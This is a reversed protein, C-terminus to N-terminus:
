LEKTLDAYFKIGLLFGWLDHAETLNSICDCYVDYQQVDMAEMQLLEELQNQKDKVWEPCNLQTQGIDGTKLCFLIDETIM